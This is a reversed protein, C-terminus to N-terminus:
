LQFIKPLRAGGVRQTPSDDLKYQPFEQELRILEELMMDFEYDSIESRNQQYYLDNHHHIVQSLEKIRKEAAQETM